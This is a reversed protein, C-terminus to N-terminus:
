NEKFIPLHEIFNKKQQKRKDTKMILKKGKEKWWKQTENKSKENMKMKKMENGKNIGKTKNENEKNRERWKTGKM